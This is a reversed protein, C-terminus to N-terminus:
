VFGRRQWSRLADGLGHLNRIALALQAANSVIASLCQTIIATAVTLRSLWALALLILLRLLVEGTACYTLHDSRGLVRHVGMSLGFGLKGVYTGVAALAILLASGSALQGVSALWGSLSILAICPVLKLTA